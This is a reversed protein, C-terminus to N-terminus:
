TASVGAVALMEEINALKEGASGHAVQSKEYQDIAKWGRYDVLNPKQSKMWAEFEGNDQYELEQEFEMEQMTRDIDHM